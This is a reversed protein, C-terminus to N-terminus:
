INHLDLGLHHEGNISTQHSNVHSSLMLYNTCFCSSNVQGEEREERM